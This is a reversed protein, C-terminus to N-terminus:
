GTSGKGGRFDRHGVGGHNRTEKKTTRDGGGAQMYEKRFKKKKKKKKKKKRTGAGGKSCVRRNGPLPKRQTDIKAKEEKM